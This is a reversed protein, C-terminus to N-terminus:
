PRSRSNPTEPGPADEGGNVAGQGRGRVLAKPDNMVGDLVIVQM